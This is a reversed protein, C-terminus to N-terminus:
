NLNSTVRVIVHVILKEGKNELCSLVRKLSVFPPLESCEIPASDELLWGTYHVNVMKGAIAEKGAGVKVDMKTLAGKKANAHTAMFFVIIFINLIFIKKMGSMTVEFVLNLLEFLM